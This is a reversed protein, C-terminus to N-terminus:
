FGSGSEPDIATATVTTGNITATRDSTNLKPAGQTAAGDTTFAGVQSGDSLVIWGADVTAGRVRSTSRYLGSPKKAAAVDFTWKKTGTDVAGKARGHGFTGTLSADHKGTLSLEGDSATGVLWAEIRGGDCVYAIAVGKRAVIAVSAGGGDVHGAWTATALQPAPTTAAVVPATTPEPTATATPTAPAPSTTAAGAAGAYEDNSSSNINVLLIGGALVAGALLTIIPGKRRM